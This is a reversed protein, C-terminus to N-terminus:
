GRALAQLENIKKGIFEILKDNLENLVLRIKSVFERANRMVIDTEKYNISIGYQVTERARKIKWLYDIYKESITIAEIKDKREKLENFNGILEKSIQEGFFHELVAVTTAHDKSELGIKTLLSMASQYMAYYASTVVWDKHGLKSLDTMVILNHDAKRIHGESLYNNPKSVRLGREQKARMMSKVIMDKAKM